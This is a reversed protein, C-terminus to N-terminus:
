HILHGTREHRIGQQHRDQVPLSFFFASGAGPQSSLSLHSGHLEVLTRCIALGLGTGKPGKVTKRASHVQEFKNFIKTQDAPAIGIGSDKVSISVQNNSAPELIIEIRGGAPTFKIANSVLNTLIQRIKEGDATVRPLVGPSRLYSVLKKEHFQASFFELVERALTELAVPGPNLEVKGRELAAVDLLDNIFRTLRRTNARMRELYEPWATQPLGQAAEDQMLNLYSETAGLPSRLEHTVASVFDEKLTDLEQLREAMARFARALFGLEDGRKETDGMAVDYRGEGVRQAAKALRAIIRSWSFAMLFAMLLGATLAAGAIWAVRRKLYSLQDSLRDEFYRQSFAVSATAAWRPGLKIPDTLVLVETRSQEEASEGRGIRAPESHAMIQGSPNTVSASLLGPTWKHIWGTYKVMLLDDNALLAERAIHALNRLVAQRELEAQQRISRQELFYYSASLGLTTILLLAAITLALKPFLKM